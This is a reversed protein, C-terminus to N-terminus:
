LPGEKSIDHLILLFYKLLFILLKIYIIVNLFFCVSHNNFEKWGIFSCLCASFSFPNDVIDTIPLILM